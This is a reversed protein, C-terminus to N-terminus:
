RRCKVCHGFYYIRCNKIRGVGPIWSKPKFKKSSVVDLIRGCKECIFHDHEHMFGDFHKIDTGLEQIQGAARLFDLIRYVTALSINPIKRKVSKYVTEATPHTKVSSLYGLIAQKQRTQRSQEKQKNTIM